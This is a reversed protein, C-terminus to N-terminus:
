RGRLQTNSCDRLRFDFRTRCVVVTAVVTIFGAAAVRTGTDLKFAVTAAADWFVPGTVTVVVTPVVTILSMGVTGVLTPFLVMNVVVIGYKPQARLM